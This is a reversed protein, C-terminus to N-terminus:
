QENVLFVDWAWRGVKSHKADDVKARYRFLNGYQDTRKSENYNLSISEVSLSSLPRLETPESIGNHNTDQWLRLSSFISDRSDMVADGNGGNEPEDYVALAIFGNPEPSSPQPAFNGFLEIGNDIQGNANRDLAIWADDSGAATWALRECNGDNNLDFNVGNIDDTLDFGNGFTDIV